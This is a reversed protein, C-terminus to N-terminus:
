RHRDEERTWQRECNVREAYKFITERLRVACTSKVPMPATRLPTFLNRCSSSRRRTRRVTCLPARLALSATRTDKSSSSNHLTEKAIVVIPEHSVFQHRTTRSTSLRTCKRAGSRPLSPSEEEAPFRNSSSVQFETSGCPTPRTPADSLFAERDTRCREDISFSLQADVRTHCRKPPAQDECGRGRSAAKMQAIM